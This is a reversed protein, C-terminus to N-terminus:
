AFIQINQESIVSGAFVPRTSPRSGTDNTRLQVVSLRPRHDPTNQAQMHYWCQRLRTSVVM